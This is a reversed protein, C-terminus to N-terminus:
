RLQMSRVLSHSLVRTFKYNLILNPSRSTNTFFRLSSSLPVSSGSRTLLNYLRVLCVVYSTVVALLLIAFCLAHLAFCVSVVCLLGSTALLSVHMWEASNVLSQPLHQLAALSFEVNLLVLCLSVSILACACWSM